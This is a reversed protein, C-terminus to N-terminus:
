LTGGRAKHLANCAIVLAPDNVAMVTQRAAAIGVADALRQLADFLEPTAAIKEAHIEAGIQVYAVTRKGSKIAIRTQTEHITWGSM